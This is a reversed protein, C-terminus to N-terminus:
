TIPQLCWKPSKWLKVPELVASGLASVPLYRVPLCRMIVGSKVLSSLHILVYKSLRGKEIFGDPTVYYKYRRSPADKIKIYGKLVLRKILANAMGLTVELETAVM